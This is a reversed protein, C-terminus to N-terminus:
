SAGLQARVQILPVGTTSEATMTIDGICFCVAVLFGFGTICGVYVSLIMAKPAERRANTMEETM